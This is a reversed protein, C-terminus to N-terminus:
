KSVKTTLRTFQRGKEDQVEVQGKEEDTRVVTAEVKGRGVKVQVKDGPKYKVEM